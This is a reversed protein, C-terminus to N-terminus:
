KTIKDFEETSTELYKGSGDDSRYIFFAKLKNKKAYAIAKEKGMAMLATAWADADMCTDSVVSVSALQSAVPAGSKFNITHQYRKGGEKFFNRYDGSTALAVDKMTVVRVVPNGDKNSPSEVGIKWPRTLSEGMTRVEGGVEVLANRIGQSKLLEILADVGYGKASASLDLYVGDVSKTLTNGDLKIKEYGVKEKAALVDSQSPIKRKGNPGFGWLNVLTGITPDFTGDTKKAVDLAHELTRKFDKGPFFKEDKSMKNFLSIESDSIYTSMAKNVEDLRIEVDKKLKLENYGQPAIFKINYITGMTPGSLRYFQLKDSQCSSFTTLAILFIALNFIFIRNLKM